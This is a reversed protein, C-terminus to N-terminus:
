EFFRIPGIAVGLNRLDPAGSIQHPNWTRSVKFFLIAEEQGVWPVTFTFTEWVPRKLLLEALEKKQRFFGKLLYIRVRVPNNQIDPHTALLSLEMNKKNMTIPQGGYRGTWRFAIGEKTRERVSLGFAANLGLKQRRSELSLSHLSNWLFLVCFIVLFAAGSIKVIRVFPANKQSIAGSSVGLVILGTLLWFLYHIEYSGIFTHWQLLLGLAALGSIAGSLFVKQSTLPPSERYRRKLLRIIEYLMWFILLIGGAGLESGVQIFYNESSEPQIDIHHMKAYNSVEIIFSGIGIGTLPYDKLMSLGMPWLRTTRYELDPRFNRLRTLTKTNQLGSFAGKTMLLIGVILFTAVGLGALPLRGSKKLRRLLAASHFLFFVALSVFLSLFAIKSGTFFILYVSLLFALSSALRLFGKSIIAMALLLPSIMAQYAGFALADKFTGNIIGAAISTPNNGLFPYALHQFLGFLLSLLTSATVALLASRVFGDSHCTSVIIALLAFGSLYNLASFVVSMIAGGATVGHVNVTLEYISDAGFPFFNAYRFITIVASAFILVSLFLMPKFLRHPFYLKEKFILLNILWGQFYFLFLVLAAPAHPIPEQIGFFYPLSNVLPFLFIFLLTGRQAELSTLFLVLLLLPLFVLQFPLVLPVYKIYFFILGGSTAPITLWLLAKPPFGNRMKM